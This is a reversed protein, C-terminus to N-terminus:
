QPIGYQALSGNKYKKDNTVDKGVWDPPTYKNAAEISPFEVEYYALGALNGKFIDIAFMIGSKELGQYRTKYIINGETKKMLTNYEQETIYFEREERTMLDDTVYAKVTLFYMWDDACRIRIEPSFSIYAQTLEYKDLTSLDFPIKSKDVLFKREIELSSTDPTPTPSIISTPTPSQTFTPSPTNTTPIPTTPIPTPSVQIYPPYSESNANFHRAICLVDLMNISDDKNFDSDAMYLSDGKISNFRAALLICDSMNVCGDGNIDGAWMPIDKLLATFNQFTIGGLTRKLFGPKQITITTDFGLTFDGNQDTSASSAAGSITFGANVLEMEVLNCDIDTKINGIIRYVPPMDSPATEAYAKLQGAIDTAIMTQFLLICTLASTIIKKFIKM